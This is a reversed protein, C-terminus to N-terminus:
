NNPKYPGLTKLADEVLSTDVAQEVTVAGDIWGQSKYFDFDKHLSNMNLKGDPQAGQPAISRYLQADKIETSEVLISIVDDATRGSIKGDKLSDNYYRQAKIFARMLRVAADRHDHIFKGSIMFVSAEHYPDIVDDSMIRVAPALKEAQTASPEATLGADIKGNVMATVHNPYGLYVPEIDKFTLGARKLAENLTSTSSAGQSTVAIKMGKLDALTKYRGSEVLDKRVILINHGYGPPANSNNAVVKIDIGRAVANYLGATAAGDGAQLEGTGLPAIIKTGSDFAVLTVDFGEEKFYGKKDAIFIGIDSSTNTIAVKIPMLEASHLALPANLGALGVILGLRYLGLRYLCHRLRTLYSM